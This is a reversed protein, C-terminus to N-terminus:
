RGGLMWTTRMEAVMGLSTSSIVLLNMVSGTFTSTFRSSNVSSPMLCNKTATSLSYHFNSVSHSKYSVSVIVCATIKQLVRFFTSQSVSLIRDFLKVTEDICPSMGCCSRSLM